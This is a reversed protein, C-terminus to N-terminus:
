RDHELLLNTDLAPTRGPFIVGATLREKLQVKAPLPIRGDEVDVDTDLRGGPVARMRVAATAGPGPRDNSWSLTSTRGPFFDVTVGAVPM